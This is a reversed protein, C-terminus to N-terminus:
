EYGVIAVYFLILTGGAIYIPSAAIDFAVSCPLLLTKIVAHEEQLTKKEIKGHFWRVTGNEQIGIRFSDPDEGCIINGDQYEQCQDEAVIHLSQRTSVPFRNNKIPKGELFEDIELDIDKGILIGDTNKAPLVLSSVKTRFEVTKISENFEDAKYIVIVENGCLRANVLAKPTETIAGTKEYLKATACGSLHFCILLLCFQKIINKM